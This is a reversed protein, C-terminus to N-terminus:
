RAAAVWIASIFRKVVTSCCLEAFSIYDVINSFRAAAAIFQKNRLETRTIFHQDCSTETAAIFHQDRSEAGAILHQDRPETKSDSEVPYRREQHNGAIM